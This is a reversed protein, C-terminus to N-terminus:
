RSEEGGTEGQSDERYGMIEVLFLWHVDNLLKGSKDKVRRSLDICM